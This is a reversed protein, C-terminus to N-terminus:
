IPRNMLAKLAHEISLEEYLIGYTASCIPMDLRHAVIVEHVSKATTYGEVTSNVFRLAESINGHKGIQYGFKYNRSTDTGCTLMIDGVGALGYVTEKAGGFVEVIREMEVLSRTILAAKANEGLGYGECIGSAIALVNKVAGCVEIGSMDMSKYCRFTATNFADSLDDLFTANNSAIVSAAPLKRIIYKAFNPGSLVAVDSSPSVESVIQHMLKMSSNEIGKSIILFRCYKKIQQIQSAVERLAQSPVALIVLGTDLITHMTHSLTNESHANISEVIEAERAIITIKDLNCAITSSLATGWQGGGIVSVTKIPSRM